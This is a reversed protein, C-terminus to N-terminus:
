HKSSGARMGDNTKVSSIQIIETSSPTQEVARCDALIGYGKWEYGNTSGEIRYGYQPKFTLGHRYKYTYFIRFFLRLAHILPGKLGIKGIKGTFQSDNGVMNAQVPLAPEVQPLGYSNWRFGFSYFM